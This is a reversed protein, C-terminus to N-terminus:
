SLEKMERGKIDRLHDEEDKSTSRSCHIYVRVCCKIQDTQSWGHATFGIRRLVELTVM